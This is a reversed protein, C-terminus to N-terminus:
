EVLVSQTRFPSGGAISSYNGSPHLSTGFFYINNVVFGGYDTFTFHNAWLYLGAAPLYWIGDGYFTTNTNLSFDSGSTPIWNRDAFFLVLPIAGNVSSTPASLNLTSANSGTQSVKMRGYGAGNGSTYFLTIGSGSVSANVWNSGGTIIYLGPLLTVTANTITLGAKSGTGCYTGPNLVQSGSTVAYASYTCGSFVPQTIYALPDALAPVNYRPPGSAQSGQALQSIWGQLNSGTATGEVNVGFGILNSFGDVQFNQNVVVPCNANMSASANQFTYSYKSSAGGLFWTCAPVLAVARASVTISGGNLVGMFITKVKKSITAQIADYDGAYPGYAPQRIVTVTTDNKGNTFGNLAADASGASAWNTSAREAELEAGVAAADAANQMQLTKLEVNGTDVVLGCFLLLVPLIIAFLPLM